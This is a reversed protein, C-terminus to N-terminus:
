LIESDGVIFVFVVELIFVIFLLSVNKFWAYVRGGGLFFVGDNGLVMIFDIFCGIGLCVFISFM